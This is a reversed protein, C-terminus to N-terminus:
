LTLPKQHSADSAAPFLNDRMPPFLDDIRCLIIRFRATRTARQLLYDWGAQSYQERLDVM